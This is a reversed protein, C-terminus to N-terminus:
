PWHYAQRFMPLLHQNYKAPPPWSGAEKMQEIKATVGYDAVFLRRRAESFFFRDVLFLLWYDIEAQTVKSRNWSRLISACARRKDNLVVNFVHNAIKKQRETPERRQLIAHYKDNHPM